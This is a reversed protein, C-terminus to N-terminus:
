PGKVWKALAPLVEKNREWITTFEDLPLPCDRSGIEITISPVGLEGIAWEKFGALAQEEGIDMPYGTVARVALAMDRSAANVAAKDGFSHFIVSGFAHYSVTADFANDRTYRALARSEAADEPAEGKYHSSSPKARGPTEQWKADFNRNLDVGKGNAKWELLYQREDLKTNGARRDNQYIARLADTMEVKQSLIVGDPNSIPVIHFCIDDGAAGEKLWREAQAMVLLATMHERAHMAAQVLVKKRAKENGLILVPIDRGAESKGISKVSIKGEYRELLAQIDAKMQSYSYMAMPKVILLDAEYGQQGKRVLYGGLVYGQRGGYAVRAYLGAYSILQVQADKPIQTIARAGVNPAVRLTIYEECAAIYVGDVDKNKVAYSPDSAATPSVSTGPSASASPSVSTGPSASAGPSVSTGPSASASPTGQNSASSDPTPTEGNEIAAMCGSLTMCAVLCWAAMATCKRQKGTM